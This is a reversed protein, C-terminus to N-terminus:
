PNGWSSTVNDEYATLDHISYPGENCKPGSCSFNDYECYDGMITKSPNEPDPQEDCFCRGCVCSGRGSCEPGTSEPPQCDSMIKDGSCACEANDEFSMGYDTHNIRQKECYNEYLPLHASFCMEDEPCWSCQPLRLCDFCSQKIHCVWRENISYVDLKRALVATIFLSLYILQHRYMNM